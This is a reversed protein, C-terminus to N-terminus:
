PKRELFRLIAAFTPDGPEAVAAISTMHTGPVIVLEGFVGAEDLLRVFRAGQELIPPHVREGEAVIVLTPASSSSVYFSPNASLYAEATGFTRVSDSDAQFRERIRDATAGRLALDHNDLVCGMAVVGALETPALGVTALYAPNTGLEAVITCGSSHGFLFLRDPDGGRAAVLARVKAVAAAVDEAMVPWTFSPALRYDTSACAYGAALFPGCVGRYPASDRREGSEQLSGGHVFLVTAPPTGNPWSFDLHQESHPDAVYAVDRLSEPATSPPAAALGACATWVMAVVAAERALARTVPRRDRTPERM